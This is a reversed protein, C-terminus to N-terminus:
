VANAIMVIQARQARSKIIARQLPLKFNQLVHAAVGNARAVIRRRRFQEFQSVFPTGKHHVLHEIAPPTALRWIIVMKKEIVPVFLIHPACIRRSGFEGDTMMHLMPLSTPSCNVPVFPAAKASCSQSMRRMIFVSCTRSGAGHIPRM